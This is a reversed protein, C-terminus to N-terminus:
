CSVVSLLDDDSLSVLELSGPKADEFSNKIEDNQQSEITSPTLQGSNSVAEFSKIEVLAQNDFLQESKAVDIFPFSGDIDASFNFSFDGNFM